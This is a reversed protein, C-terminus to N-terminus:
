EQGDMHGQLEVLAVRDEITVERWYFGRGFAAVRAVRTRESAEM